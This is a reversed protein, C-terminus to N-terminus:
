NVYQIFYLIGDYEITSWGNWLGRANILYRGFMEKEDKDYDFQSCYYDFNNQLDEQTYIATGRNIYRLAESKSCGDEILVNFLLEDSTTIKM